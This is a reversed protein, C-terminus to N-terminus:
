KSLFTKIPLGNSLVSYFYLTSGASFTTILQRPSARGPMLPILGVNKYLFTNDTHFFLVCLSHSTIILLLHQGCFFPSIRRGSSRTSFNTTNVIWAILYLFPPPLFLPIPYDGIFSFPFLFLPFGDHPVHDGKYPVRPMFISLNM